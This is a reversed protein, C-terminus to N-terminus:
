AGKYPKNKGAILKSSNHVFVIFPNVLGDPGPVAEVTEPPEQLVNGRCIPM